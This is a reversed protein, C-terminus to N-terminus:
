VHDDSPGYISLYPGYMIAYPRYIIEHMTKSKATFQVQLLNNLKTLWAKSSRQSGRPSERPVEPIKQLPGAQNITSILTRVFALVLNERKDSGPVEPLRQLAHMGHLNVYLNAAFQLMRRLHVYLNIGFWLM